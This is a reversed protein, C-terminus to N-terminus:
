KEFASTNVGSKFDIEEYKHLLSSIKEKLSNYREIDQAEFKITIYPGNQSARIVAMESETDVRMGDITLYQAGPFLSKLDNAIPGEILKFKIDDALGLKIEPSSIYKPLGSIVEKLSKGTRKLYALLRLTAIAGDDHGYFNDMFFFHGSLEGGFPAREQKVKAKIFSHGTKWVVPEGGAERIVDSTAKSCLVNFVIKGGPLFDLIDKAFIAVLLDNWILNGDEDVVGLRDGDCDYSVGLNAKEEKVKKGLRELVDKETPDPTGVPFTGDLETNQEIVQCGAERLIDPLFAGATANSCDIVIKLGSDKINARKGIDAKYAAFVDEKRVSGKEPFSKFDGSQALRRIEQIEEGLLTDSFGSALKLGNYERPLHSATIMAAGKSQFYYQSFYVIQALSLGIDIVNIGAEVMSSVFANKYEESTERVDMGVVCDRVRHCVLFTAYAQGLRSFVEPNLETGVVGRIDYGRFINDPIAM